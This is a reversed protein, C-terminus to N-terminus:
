SVCRIHGAVQILNNQVKAALEVEREGAPGPQGSAMRLRQLERLENILAVNQQLV